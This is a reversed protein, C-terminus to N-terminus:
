SFFANQYTWRFGAVITGTAYLGVVVLLGFLEFFSLFCSKM